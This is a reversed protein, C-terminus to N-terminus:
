LHCIFKSYKLSTCSRLSPFPVSSYCEVYCLLSAGEYVTKNGLFNLQYINVGDESEVCSCNMEGVPEEDCKGNYPASCLLIFSNNQLFFDVTTPYVLCSSSSFQTTNVSCNVKEVAEESFYEPCTLNIAPVVEGTVFVHM